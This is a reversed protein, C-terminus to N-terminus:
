SAAGYIAQAKLYRGAMQVGDAAAWSIQVTYTGADLDSVGGAITMSDSTKDGGKSRITSGAVILRANWTKDGDPFGQACDFNIDITGKAKLTVSISSVISFNSAGSGTVTDTRTSFVPIDSTYATGIKLNDVLLNPIYAYAGEQLFQALLVNNAGRIETIGAVLGVRGVSRKSATLYIGAVNDDANVEFVARATADDPGVVVEQLSTIKASNDGNVASLGNLLDAMTQGPILGSQVTALSFIAATGDPSMAVIRNLLSALAGYATVLENKMQDIVEFVPQDSSYTLSKLLADADTLKLAMDILGLTNIDLSSIVQASERGSVANTDKSTNDGTVDANDAPKTGDPDTIDPWAVTLGGGTSSATSLGEITVSLTSANEALEVSFDKFFGYVTLSDMGEAAIWLVPKARVAAVRRVVNGAAGTAILSKIEMRKAWARQVVTTTGFDDTSNSSYDTIGVTPSTETVGLPSLAGMLLTGISANAGAITVTITDGAAINADLFTISESGAALHRDYGTAQVRVSDAVVDLAALATVTAAPILQVVINGAAQTISGLAGDFMAWRNTPGIDIWHTGDDATPDHGTNADVLSEYIRHTAVSITRAGTAFTTDAAWAPYDNEAVSSSHLVADTIAAPRVMMLTSAGDVDPDIDPVEVDAGPLGSITLSCYTIAPLQLEVSLDSFYGVTTLIPYDDGIWLIPRARYGALLGQIGDVLNTPVSLRTTIQRRWTREVVTTVGFDDTVRKSFDTIGVTPGTEMEGIEIASGFVCNGVSTSGEGAITITLQAGAPAILDTFIASADLAALTRDYVQAGGASVQVRVTSAAVDLLALTDIAAGPAIALQIGDGQSAVTSGTDFMAWRNTPGADLWYTTGELAPDNGLNAAAVSEYIRQAVVVRDAVAYSHNADWAPYAVDVLSSQVLMADTLTVPDVIIM